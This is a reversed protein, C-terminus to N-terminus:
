VAAMLESESADHGWGGRIEDRDYRNSALVADNMTALRAQEVKYELERYGETRGACFADREAATYSRSPHVDAFESEIAATFGCHWAEDLKTWANERYHLGAAFRTNVTRRAASDFRIAISM